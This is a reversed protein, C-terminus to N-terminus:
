QSAWSNSYRQFPTGQKFQVHRQNERNSVHLTFAQQLIHNNWHQYNYLQEPNILRTNQLYQQLVHMDRGAQTGDRQQEKYQNDQQDQMQYANNSYNNERREGDVMFIEIKGPPLKQNNRKMWAGEKLVDQINGLEKQCITIRMLATWWVQGKWIPAILVGKVKKLEVRRVVVPILSIPCHLLPTECEWSQEM